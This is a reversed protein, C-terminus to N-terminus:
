PRAVTHGAGALAAVAADLSARKVLVYDTDFTSIAFIGIGSESLPRLAALLIGTEDFAFPGEIRLVAWGTDVRAGEPAEDEACVLSLEGDVRTLSLLPGSPPLRVPAGVSLQCIACNGELVTLALKRDTAAPM